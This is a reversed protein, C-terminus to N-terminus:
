VAARACACSAAAFPFARPRYCSCPPILQAALEVKGGGDVIGVAFRVDAVRELLDARVSDGSVASESAISDMEEDSHVLVPLFNRLGCFIGAGIGLCPDVRNGVLEQLGPILQGDAVTIENPCGLTTMVSRHRREKAPDLGGSVDVLTDVLAVVTHPALRELEVLVQYVAM